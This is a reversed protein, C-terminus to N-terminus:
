TRHFWRDIDKYPIKIYTPRGHACHHPNECSDLEKIIKKIKAEDWIEDGARVSQHCGIYQLIERKIESFSKERGMQIIELCLDIILQPNLHKPQLIAPITRLLFTNGGFFDLEFGYKKMDSLVAKVFDVENPAVEIQIPLILRQIPVQDLNQWKQVREYNIREHAAHQDILILSDESQFVLYNKGAQIGSNLKFLTPLNKVAIYPLESFAPQIQSSFASEDQVLNGEKLRHIKDDLDGSKDIKKYVKSLDVFPSKNEAIKQDFKENKRKLPSIFHTQQPPQSKRKSINPTEQGIDDNNNIDRSSRSYNSPKSSKLGTSINLDTSIRLANIKTSNISNSSDSSDSSNASSPTWYDMATESFSPKKKSSANVDKYAQRLHNKIVKGISAQILSFFQTPNVFKVIKKTPHVNCDVNEPSTELFLIFFPYKHRMLYDKYIDALMTYFEKSIVFRHNVFLSSAGKDSRAIEPHGVFGFIHYNDGVIDIPILHSQIKKGYISQISFGYIDILNQDPISVDVQNPSRKKVKGRWHPSNLLTLNNHDLKFHILPYALAYRTVIDTIHGLEVRNSRMFKKRVPLNFFLNKIKIETGVPAGCPIKSLVKGAEMQLRMGNEQTAPRSTIEIQSVAAISALAEGRFGLTGISDLQDATEIKSSTHRHFAIELDDAEIGSGNDIIQILDKGANKISIFIKSACADIANEVLEKVVSAPREIVEGAAIKEYGDILKIKM